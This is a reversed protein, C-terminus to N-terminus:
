RDSTMKPTSTMSRSNSPQLHGTGTIPITYVHATNYTGWNVYNGNVKLDLLNLVVGNLIPIAMLVTPGLDTAKNGPTTVKDGSNWSYEADFEIFENAWATGSATVKYDKDDEFAYATTVLPADLAPVNM